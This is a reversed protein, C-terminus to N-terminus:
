PRQARPVVLAESEDARTARSLQLSSLARRIAFDVAGDGPPGSDTHRRLNEAILGFFTQRANPPLHSAVSGIQNLQAPSLSIPRPLVVSFTPALRVSQAHKVVTSVDPSLFREVSLKGVLLPDPGAELAQGRKVVAALRQKRIAEGDLRVTATM